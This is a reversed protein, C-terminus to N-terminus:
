GLLGALRDIAQGVVAEPTSAGALVAMDLPRRGPLWGSQPVAARADADWARIVEASLIADADEIFWAPVHRRALEYLHRTNSSGFGGVVVALDCDDCLQEAAAQRNQTARCVTPQFALRRDAEAPGFREAFARQVMRRVEMTEDYLMTTQSVQCLRHLQAWSEANTRAPGFAESPPRQQEATAIQEAFAECQALSEVVVYRGGAEALRSITVATEDHGARGFILAAYGDALQREAWKRLRLVDGCTTDLTRCGIAELQRSVAPPVGFAPIVAWDAATLDEGLRGFHEPSLIEVGRQRFHENVWPNHIIEGLLVIRGDTPGPEQLLRQLRTLASRVGRCFGFEGPICIRGGPLAWVGGAQRLRRVTPSSFADDAAGAPQPTAESM